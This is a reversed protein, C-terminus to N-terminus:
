AFIGLAAARASRFSVVSGLRTCIWVDANAPYKASWELADAQTWARHSYADFEWVVRVEYPQLAARVARILDFLAYM